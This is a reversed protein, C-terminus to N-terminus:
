VKSRAWSTRNALWYATLSRCNNFIFVLQYSSRNGSDYALIFTRVALIQAANQSSNRNVNAAYVQVYEIWQKLEPENVEQLRKAERLLQEIVNYFGKSRSKSGNTRVLMHTQLNLSVSKTRIKTPKKPTSVHSDLTLDGPAVQLYNAVSKACNIAM